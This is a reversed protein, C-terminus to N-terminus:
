IELEKVKGPKGPLTVVKIGPNVTISHQIYKPLLELVCNIESIRCWRFDYERILHKKPLM